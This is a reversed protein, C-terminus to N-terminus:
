VAFSATERLILNIIHVRRTSRVTSVWLFFSFPSFFLSREWRRTKKQVCFTRLGIRSAVDDTKNRKCTTSSHSIRNINKAKTQEGFFFFFFTHLCPVRSPRIVSNKEEYRGLTTRNIFDRILSIVLLCRNSANFLGVYVRSSVPDKAKAHPAHINYLMPIQHRIQVRFRTRHELM